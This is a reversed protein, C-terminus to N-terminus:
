KQQKSKMYLVQVGLQQLQQKYLNAMEASRVVTPGESNLKAETM